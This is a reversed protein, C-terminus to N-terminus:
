SISKRQTAKASSYSAGYVLSTKFACLVAQRQRWFALILSAGCCGLPGGKGRGYDETNCDLSRKEHEASQMM